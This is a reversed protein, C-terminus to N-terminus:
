LSTSSMRNKGDTKSQYLMEDAHKLLDLLRLTFNKNVTIAGISITTKVIDNNSQLSLDAMDSVLANLQSLQDENNGSCLLVVFEDGGYRACLDSSRNFRSKIQMSFDVLLKDGIPHGYEDNIRKFDDIDIIAVSFARKNRANLKIITEAQEDFFRRNYLHTLTDERALKILVKNLSTLEATKTEVKHELQRNFADMLAKSQNLNEAISQTEVTSFPYKIITNEGSFVKTLELLPETIQKAFRKAIFLFLACVLIMAVTLILLNSMFINTIVSPKAMVYISWGYNSLQKRFFYEKGNIKTISLSNSYRDYTSKPIFEQLMKFPLDSSSYVVKSNADTVVIYSPENNLSLHTDFFSFKPLNLSGEVIGKFEGNDLIPSSIAVIPDSGFVRGMFANSVYNAKNEKPVKFYARDAVSLPLDSSSRANNFLHAPSAQTILGNKNIVAMTVFGSFRSHASVLSQSQDNNNNHNAALYDVISVHTSLYRNLHESIETAGLSLNNVVQNEYTNSARATLILAIILSPMVVSISLLHFIHDSMKPLNGKLTSAIIKYPLLIFILSALLTYLVGNLLQKLSALLTYEIPINTTFYIILFAAPVGIVLWYFFDSIFLSFGRRKLYILSIIELLLLPVFYINEASIALAISAILAAMISASAGKLKLCLIVLAQGLHLSIHGYLPILMFINIIAAPVGFLIGFKVSKLQESINSKM